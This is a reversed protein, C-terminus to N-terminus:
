LASGPVIWRDMMSVNTFNFLFTPSGSVNALQEDIERKLEAGVTGVVKGGLEVIIVEDRHRINVDM